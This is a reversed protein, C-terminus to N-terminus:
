QAPPQAAGGAKRPIDDPIVAKVGGKGLVILEDEAIHGDVGGALVVGEIPHGQRRDPQQACVTIAPLQHVETILVEFHAQACLLIFLTQRPRRAAVFAKKNM